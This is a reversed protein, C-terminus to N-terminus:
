RRRSRPWAGIESSEPCPLGLACGPEHASVAPLALRETSRGLGADDTKAFCGDAWAIRRIAHNEAQPDIGESDQRPSLAWPRPQTSESWWPGPDWSYTISRRARPLVGPKM